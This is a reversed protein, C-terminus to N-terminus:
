EKIKELIIAPCIRKVGEIKGIRNSILEALTQGDKTWIEAMIMHDGTSTAVYKTEPLKALEKAVDLFKTPDVDVGLITVTNYGIKSPDVIATYKKIVGKSELDNIRKRVTSESIGLMKAIETNPIRANKQLIEIIRKDKQDIM